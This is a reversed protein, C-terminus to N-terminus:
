LILRRDIGLAESFYTITEQSTQKYLHELLLLNPVFQSDLLQKM